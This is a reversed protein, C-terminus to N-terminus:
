VISASKPCFLWKHRALKVFNEGAAPKKVISPENECAAAMKWYNNVYKYAINKFKVQKIIRLLNFM